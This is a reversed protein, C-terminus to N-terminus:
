KVACKEARSLGRSAFTGRLLHTGRNPVVLPALKPTQVHVDSAGAEDEEHAEGKVGHPSHPTSLISFFLFHKPGTSGGHGARLSRTGDWGATSRLFLM